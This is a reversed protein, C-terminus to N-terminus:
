VYMSLLKGCQTCERIRKACDICYMQNDNPCPLMDGRRSGKRCVSCRQMTNNLVEAGFTANVVTEPSCTAPFGGRQYLWTIYATQETVYLAKTLKPDGYEPLQRLDIFFVCKSGSAVHETEITRFILSTAGKKLRGTVNRFGLGKEYARKRLHREVADNADDPIEENLVKQFEQERETVREKRLDVSTSQGAAKEARRQAKLKAQGGM